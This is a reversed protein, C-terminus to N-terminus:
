LLCKHDNRFAVSFIFNRVDGVVGDRIKIHNFSIIVENRFGSNEVVRKMFRKDDSEKLHWNNASDLLM